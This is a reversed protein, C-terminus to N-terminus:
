WAYNQAGEADVVVRCREFWTAAPWELIEPSIPANPHPLLAMVLRQTRFLYRYNPGLRFPLPVLLKPGEESWESELSPDRVPAGALSVIVGGPPCANLAERFTEAPIAQEIVQAQLAADGKGITVVAAPIINKSALAKKFAESQRRLAPDTEAALEILVVPPTETLYPLTHQALVRGIDDSRNLVARTPQPTDSLKLSISWLGGACICLLLIIGGTRKLSVGM